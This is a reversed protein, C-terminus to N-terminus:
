HIFRDTRNERCTCICFLSLTPNLHGGGWNFCLSSLLITSPSQYADLYNTMYLASYLIGASNLHSILIHPSILSLSFTTQAIFSLDWHLWLLTATPTTRLTLWSSLFNHWFISYIFIFNLISYIQKKPFVHELTNCHVLIIIYIVYDVLM